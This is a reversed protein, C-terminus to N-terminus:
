DRRDRILEPLAEENGTMALIKEVNDSKLSQTSLGIGEEDQPASKENQQIREKVTEIWEEVDRPLLEYSNELDQSLKKEIATRRAEKCDKTCRLFEEIIKKLEDWGDRDQSAFKDIRGNTYAKYTMMAEQKQVVAEQFAQREKAEKEQISVQGLAKEQFIKM